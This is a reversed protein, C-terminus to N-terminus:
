LKCFNIIIEPNMVEPHFICGYIEKTTHKIMSGDKTLPIFQKDLIPQRSNLFYANFKGNILPNIELSEVEQSGIITKERLSMGFTSVIIQMGACIGLIKGSYNKIWSFKDVDKLYELDELANGCIIIRDYKSADSIKSYHKTEFNFNNNLLLKEIPKVFENESLKQSCTSVVLIM